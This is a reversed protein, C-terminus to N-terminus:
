HADLNIQWYGVDHWAGFKYGVETFHATKTMGFKEHLQTSAPNPLTIGGIVVHFSQAKLATFLAEYLLSGIGKGTHSPSLYVSVEATHRYAERTNWPVAYAYGLIEQKEEAVLWPLGASAVKQLRQEIQKLSRPTEELSVVTNAVYYNYIDTVASLDTPDVQRIM